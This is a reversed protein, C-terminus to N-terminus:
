ATIGRLQQGYFPKNFQNTLGEKNFRAAIKNYSHGKSRLCRIRRKLEKSYVPPRGGLNGSAERAKRLKQVLLSKELEAFIGQIQVLAKRMPDATIALTVNEGTNVSILHLGKSALYILLSEQIRYERALRSLDEVLITRVGNTLMESVMEAFVPRVETTGTIPEEFVKVVAYRGSAFTTCEAAQRRFGDGNTQDKSSVRAYIFCNKM